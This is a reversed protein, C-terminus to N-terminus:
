WAEYTSRAMGQLLHHLHAVLLVGDLSCDSTTVGSLYGLSVGLIDLAHEPGALRGLREAVELLRSSPPPPDGGGGLSVRVMGTQRVSKM